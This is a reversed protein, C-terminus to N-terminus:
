SASLITATKLAGAARRTLRKLDTLQLACVSYSVATHDIGVRLEHVNKEPLYFPPDEASREAPPPM